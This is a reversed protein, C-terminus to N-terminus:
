NKEAVTHCGLKDFYVSGRKMLLILIRALSSQILLEIAEATIVGICHPIFAKTSDVGVAKQYGNSNDSFMRIIKELKATQANRESKTALPKYDDTIGPADRKKALTRIISILTAEFNTDSEWNSNINETYCVVHPRV